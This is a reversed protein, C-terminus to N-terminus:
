AQIDMVRQLAAISDAALQLRERLVDPRDYTAAIWADRSGAAAIEDAYGDATEFELGELFVGAVREPGAQLVLGPWELDTAKSMATSGALILAAAERRIWSAGATADLTMGAIAVLARNTATEPLIQAIPHTAVARETRGLCVYWADPHERRIRDPLGDLEGPFCRRWHLWRDFDCVFLGAHGADVGAALARRQGEGPMGTPGIEVTAGAERLGAVLGGDTPETVFAYVGAYRALASGVERFGPLLRGEPDHVTTILAPQDAVFKEM